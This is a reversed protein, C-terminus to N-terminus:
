AAAQSAPEVAEDAETMSLGCMTCEFTQLTARARPLSQTSRMPTGCHPCIPSPRYVGELRMAANQKRMLTGRSYNHANCRGKKKDLTQGVALRVFERAAIDTGMETIAADSSRPLAHANAL